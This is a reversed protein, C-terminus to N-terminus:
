SRPIPRVIRRLADSVTHAFDAHIAIDDLSIIGSLRGGANLVPMRRIRDEGLRRAVDEVEDDELCFFVEETMVDGVTTLTASKEEALVRVVIDRDTLIGVLRAGDLVPLIGVGNSRMTDAASKISHGPSAFLVHPTMIEIVKMPLGKAERAALVRM